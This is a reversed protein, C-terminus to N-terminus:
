APIPMWQKPELGVTGGWGMDGDDRWGVGDYLEVAYDEWSVVAVIGGSRVLIQSGDKPATEIPQWM